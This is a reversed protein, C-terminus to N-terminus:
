PTLAFVPQSLILIIHGFPSNHWFALVNTSNFFEVLHEDLGIAYLKNEDYYLQFIAWKAYFFIVWYSYIKKLDDM